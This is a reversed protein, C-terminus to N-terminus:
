KLDLLRSYLHCNAKATLVGVRDGSSDQLFPSPGSQCKPDALVRQPARTDEEKDVPLNQSPIRATARMELTGQKVSAMAVQETEEAM